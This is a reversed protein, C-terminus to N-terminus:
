GLVFSLFFKEGLGPNVSERVSSTFSFNFWTISCLDAAIQLDAPTLAYCKKKRSQIFDTKSFVTVTTVAGM